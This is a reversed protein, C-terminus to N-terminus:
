KHNSEFKRFLENLFDNASGSDDTKGHGAQSLSKFPIEPDQNVVKTLGQDSRTM